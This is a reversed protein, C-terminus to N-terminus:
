DSDDDLARSLSREHFSISRRLPMGSRRLGGEGGGWREGEDDDDDDSESDIKGGVVGGRRGRRAVMEQRLIDATSAQGLGGPASPITLSQTRRKARRKTTKEEEKCAVRAATLAATEAIGGRGAPCSPVATATGSSLHYVQRAKTSSLHAAPGGQSNTATIASTSARGPTLVGGPITSVRSARRSESGSLDKAGATAGEWSVRRKLEEGTGAESGRGVVSKFLRSAAMVSRLNTTKEFEGTSRRRASESTTLDGLPPSRSGSTLPSDGSNKSIGHTATHLHESSLSSRHRPARPSVIKAPRIIEHSRRGSRVFPSAPTSYGSDESCPSGSSSFSWFRSVFKRGNRSPSTPSMSSTSSPSLNPSLSPPSSPALHLIQFIGRKPKHFSPMTSLSAENSSVETETVTICGGVHSMASRPQNPNKAMLSDEKDSSRSRSKHLLITSPEERKRENLWEADFLVTSDLSPCTLPITLLPLGPDKPATYQQWTAELSHPSLPVSPPLVSAQRKAQFLQWSEHHETIKALTQSLKAPKQIHLINEKDGAQSCLCTRLWDRILGLIGPLQKNLDSWDWLLPAMPDDAAIALIKWTLSAEGEDVPFAGLPKVYYVEGTQRMREAGIEVVQLPGAGDNAAAWTQSLFGHNWPANDAFRALQVRKKGSKGGAKGGAVVAKGSRGGATAKKVVLPNFPENNAPEYRVWEGAPTSCVCALHGGSGYLEIDHWPSILSKKNVDVFLARYNASGTVGFEISEVFDPSSGEPVVKRAAMIRSPM